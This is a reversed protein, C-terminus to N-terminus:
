WSSRGVLVPASGPPVPASSAAPSAAGSGPLVAARNRECGSGTERASGLMAVDGACPAGVLGRGGIPSSGGSIGASPSATTAPASEARRTPRSTAIAAVAIRSPM